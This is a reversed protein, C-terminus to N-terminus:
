MFLGGTVEVSAGTIYASDGSALFACVDAVEEPDGLRGMPVLGAFKALVKPPVKQSMPTVIFGPLVANCRIGFRSLEKACSRTLGEVGAKSAAYNTQGVNGVKAVISGVHVISGGTGAAVLARAVAQTVLFTGQLNVALVEQFTGEDMRLLFDDRTVGACCVAVRPPSGFHEQVRRLLRTVSTASAVDVDFAANLSPVVSSPQQHGEHGWLTGLTDEAGATDRDAVAVRAGDRCLRSCVARGIGSGGGTVLAVVGRLRGAM